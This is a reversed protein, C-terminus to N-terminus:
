RTFRVEVRRIEGGLRLEQKGQFSIVNLKPRLQKILRCVNTARDLSLKADVRLVSPGMTFGTCEINKAFRAHKRLMLNVENRVAQNIVPSGPAFKSAVEVAVWPKPVVPSKTPQVAGSGSNSDVAPPAVFTIVTIADIYTLRAGGDYTYLMDWVRVSLAPMVFSFGTSSANTIPVQVGGITVHDGTGLRRGEVRVLEGGNNTVVRPTISTIEPPAVVPGSVPTSPAQAEWVAYLTATGSSYTSPLLAGGVTLSWGRFTFGSRSSTPLTVAPEGYLFTVPTVASGGQSDFTITAQWKAYLTLNSNLVQSSGTAYNNGSGDVETNWGIFTFDTKTLSGTDVVFSTTNSQATPLAGTGTNADYTVSFGAGSSINFTRLVPFAALYTVNNSSSVGGPQEARLTCNGAGVTVVNLGSVSCIAPTLTVLTIPLGSSASVPPSFSFNAAYAQNSPQPFSIEQNSFYFLRTVPTASAYSSNGAQTATVSCVSRQNTILPVIDTGNAAISCVSPTNSTLTVPLGSTATASSSFAGGGPAQPAVQAPFNISQTQTALLLSLSYAVTSYGLGDGVRFSLTAPSTAGLPVLYSVSGSRIADASITSGATVSVTSTGNFYSLGTLDASAELKIDSLPNSDPDSYNGFDAVTISATSGPVVFKSTSTSTPLANFSNASSVATPWSMGAGFQLGYLAQDPAFLRIDLSSVQSYLVRVRGEEFSQIGQYSSNSPSVFRVINTGSIQNVTLVNPNNRESSQFGSFGAWQGVDLDYANVLVNRLELSIGSLTGGSFVVSGAEWFRFRFTVDTNGNNSGMNLIILDKQAQNLSRPTNTFQSAAAPDWGWGSTSGSVAVIEVTADVAVGEIVGANPYLYRSGVALSNSSGSLVQMTSADFNLYAGNFNLSAAEAKEGVLGAFPAILSAAIALAVAAAANRFPSSFARMFEGIPVNPVLDLARLIAM